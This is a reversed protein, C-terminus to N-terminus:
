DSVKGAMEATMVAQQVRVSVETAQRVTRRKLYHDATNSTESWGMSHVRARREDEASMGAQDTMESFDENWTHRLVHSSLTEGVSPNKERISRFIKSLGALSLPSGSREAVFLFDHKQAGKIKSRFQVLHQHTLFALEDSIGIKRERTKTNPQYKRPDLKDDPRRLISVMNRRFDIARIRIGLLEGRRLGTGLGWIVLLRNRDRVFDGRWPNSESTPGIIDILAEKQAGSLGRRDSQSRAFPTRARLRALCEKLAELYHRKQEITTSIQGAVSYGLWELYARVYHLRISVTSISVRVAGNLKSGRRLVRHLTEESKTRPSAVSKAREFKGIEAMPKHAMRVLDDLEHLELFHGTRFRSRLDIGRMDTYSLLFQVGRLAQDITASSGSKPRVVTTAYVSADFVPMGNLAKILVPMREGNEFKMTRISYPASDSKALRKERECATSEIVSLHTLLTFELVSVKSHPLCPAGGM